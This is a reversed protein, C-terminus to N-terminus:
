LQCRTLFAPPFAPSATAQCSEPLMLNSCIEYFSNMNVWLKTTSIPVACPVETLSKSSCDVINNSISCGITALSTSDCGTILYYARNGPTFKSRVLSAANGPVSTARFAHSALRLAVMPAFNAIPTLAQDFSQDASAIYNAPCLCNACIVATSTTAQVSVFEGALCSPATSSCLGATTLYYTSNCTTCSTPSTGFLCQSPDSFLMLTSTRKADCRHSVSIVPEMKSSTRRAARSAPRTRAM